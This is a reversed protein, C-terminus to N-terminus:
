RVEFVVTGFGGYDAVYKGSKGPFMAGLAGTLLIDGPKLTWGQTIMTNVRWLAAQWQDGYAESGKGRNIEQGNLSLTVTVANLDIDKTTHAQGVIFQKAAVNSAIIDAGTLHKMDAYGLDPLEIVPMVAKIYKRLTAVDHVPQTLAAGIIFGIETELMLRHFVSSDVVVNGTLIGSKFLVGAVPATVSFRQQSAKSTLGAKFGVLKEVTLKKEIYAKQIRYAMNVDMGPYKLSLIPIPQHTAEAQIIFGAFDSIPQNQSYATLLVGMLLALTIASLKRMSNM